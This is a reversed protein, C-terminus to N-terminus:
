CAVNVTIGSAEGVVILDLCAEDFALQVPIIGLEVDNNLAEFEAMTAAEEYAKSGEAFAVVLADGAETLRKHASEAEPPPVLTKMRDNAESVIGPFSATLNKVIPLNAEDALFLEEEEPIVSM